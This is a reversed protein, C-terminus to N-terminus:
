EHVVRYWPTKGKTIPLMKEPLLANMMGVIKEEEETSPGKEMATALEAEMLNAMALEKSQWEKKFKAELEECEEKLKKGDQESWHVQRRCLKYLQDSAMALEEEDFALDPPYQGPIQSINNANVTVADADVTVDDKEQDPPKASVILKLRQPKIQAQSHNRPVPDSPRLAETEHVTRM